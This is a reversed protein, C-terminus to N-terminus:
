KNIKSQQNSIKNSQVGRQEEDIQINKNGSIEKSLLNNMSSLKINILNKNPINYNNILNNNNKTFVNTSSHNKFLRFGGKSKGNSDIPVFDNVDNLLNRNIEINFDRWKNYSRQQIKYSAYFSRYLSQDIYAVM